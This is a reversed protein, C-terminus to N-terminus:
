AHDGDRAGRVHGAVHGVEREPRAERVLRAGLQADVGCLERRVPRELEGREADVVARERPVLQERREARAHEHRRHAEELRPRGVHPAAARGRGDRELVDLPVARGLAVLGARGVHEARHRERRRELVQVLDAEVHERRVLATELRRHELRELGRRLDDRRRTGDAIADPTKGNATRVALIRVSSASASPARPTAIRAPLNQACGSTRCRRPDIPRSGSPPSRRTLRAPLVPMCSIVRKAVASPSSSSSARRCYGPGAPSSSPGLPAIM